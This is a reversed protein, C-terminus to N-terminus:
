DKFSIENIHINAREGEAIEPNRLSFTAKALQCAEFSCSWKAGFKTFAEKKFDCQNIQGNGCVIQGTVALKNHHSTIIIAQKYIKSPNPWKLIINFPNARAGRVLTYDDGDFLLETPGMDIKQMQVEFPEIGNSITHTTYALEEVKIDEKAKLFEPKYDMRMLYFGPQGNPYNILVKEENITVLNSAHLKEYDDKSIILLMKSLNPEEERLINSPDGIQVYRKIKYFDFFIEPSHAWTSSLFLRKQPYNRLLM